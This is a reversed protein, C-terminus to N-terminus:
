VSVTMSSTCLLWSPVELAACLKCRETLHGGHGFSSRRGSLVGATLEQVQVDQGLTGQLSGGLRKKSCDQVRRSRRRKACAKMSKILMDRLKCSFLAKMNTQLTSLCITSTCHLRCSKTPSLVWTEADCWCAKAQAGQFARRMATWGLSHLQCPGVPLAAVQPAAHARSLGAFSPHFNRTCVAAQGPSRATGPHLTAHCAFANRPAM